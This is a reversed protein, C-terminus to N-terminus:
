EQEGDTNDQQLKQLKLATVILAQATGYILLSNVYPDSIKLVWSDIRQALENPDLRTMMYIIMTEIYAAQEQLIKDLENPEEDFHSLIKNKAKGAALSVGYMLLIQVDTDDIKQYWENIRKNSDPVGIKLMLDVLLAECQDSKAIIKNQLTM